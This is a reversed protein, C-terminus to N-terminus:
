RQLADLGRRIREAAGHADIASLFSEELPALRETSGSSAVVGESLLVVEDCVREAFTLDQTAVLVGVGRAAIGRLVERLIHVAHADLAATAEDVVLLDRGLAIAAVLSVLRRQGHSLAGLRVRLRAALGFVDAFTEASSAYSPTARYLAGVLAFYEAAALEEFGAPDDPVYAVRARAAVSPQPVGDVVVHGAGPRLTGVIARLASTKGCGNPGLLGVISGARVDLSLGSVAAVRGYRVHLGDVVLPRVRSVPVPRARPEGRGADILQPV